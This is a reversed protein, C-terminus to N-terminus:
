IGLCFPKIKHDFIMHLKVGKWLTKIVTSSTQEEEPPYDKPVKQLPVESLITAKLLYRSM